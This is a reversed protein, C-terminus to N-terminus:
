QKEKTDTYIFESKPIKACGGFLIILSMMIVLIKM